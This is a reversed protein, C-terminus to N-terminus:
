KRLTSYLYINKYLEEKTKGNAWVHVYREWEKGGKNRVIIEAFYNNGKNYIRWRRDKNFIRCYIGGLYKLNNEKDNGFSSPHNGFYLGSHTIEENDFDNSNIYYVDFDPGMQRTIFYNEPLSIFYITEEINRELLILEGINEKNITECSNFSLIVILFIIGIFCKKMHKIEWTM